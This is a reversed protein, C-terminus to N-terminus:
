VLYNKIEKFNLELFVFVGDCYLIIFLRILFFCVFEVLRYKKCIFGLVFLDNRECFVGGLFEDYGYECMSSFECRFIYLVICIIRLSYRLVLVFILFFM